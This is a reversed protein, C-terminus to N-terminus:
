KLERVTTLTLDFVSGKRWKLKEGFISVYKVKGSAVATPILNFSRSPVWCNLHLTAEGRPIEMYGIALPPKEHPPNKWHDDLEPRERIEIRASDANKIEPSIIRGLLILNAIDWFDEEIINRSGRVVGFNYYVQWDQVEFEYHETEREPKKKKTKKQPM